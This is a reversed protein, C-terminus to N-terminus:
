EDKEDNVLDQIDAEIGSGAAYVGTNLTTGVTNTFAGDALGGVRDSLHEGGLSGDQELGHNVGHNQAYGLAGTAANTLADQGM